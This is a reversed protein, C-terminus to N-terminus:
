GTVHLEIGQVIFYVQRRLMEDEQRAARFFYSFPAYTMCIFPHNFNPQLQTRCKDPEELATFLKTM